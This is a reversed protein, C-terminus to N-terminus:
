AATTLLISGVNGVTFSLLYYSKEDLIMMVQIWM